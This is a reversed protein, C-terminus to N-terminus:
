ATKRGVAAYLGGEETSVKPDTAWDPRWQSTTVLGPEVLEFGTFLELVEARSRPFVNDAAAKRFEEAAQGVNVSEFDSAAHSLALCSGAVMADRYRGIVGLPNQQPSVYHFLTVALLGIPQDFDLLRRTEPANLVIDPETIDAQIMAAGENDQLLLQSHAAAVDEYDVYVVRSRPDAHQAIEHVNGVTPIGSGLDLFQRIGQDIMFLVARRMFARNMQCAVAAGPEVELLKQALARDVAFNHAGGLLYDYVRAASPKLEDTDEPIWDEDTLSV